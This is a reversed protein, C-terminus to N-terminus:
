GPASGRWDLYQRITKQAIGEMTRAPVVTWPDSATGSVTEQGQIRHLRAGGLIAAIQNKTEVGILILGQHEGAGPGGTQTEM